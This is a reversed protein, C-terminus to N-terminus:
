LGLHYRLQWRELMLKDIKEQIDYGSQHALEQIELEVEALRKQKPNKTQKPQQDNHYIKQQKEDSSRKKINKRRYIM